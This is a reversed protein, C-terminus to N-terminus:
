LECTSIILSMVSSWFLVTYCDISTWDHLPRGSLSILEEDGLSDLSLSLMWNAICSGALFKDPLINYLVEEFVSGASHPIYVLGPSTEVSAEPLGLWKVLSSESHRCCWGLVLVGREQGCGKFLCEKCLLSFDEVSKLIEAIQKCESVFSWYISRWYLRAEERKGRIASEQSGGVFVGGCDRRGNPYSNPLFSWVLNLLRHLCLCVWVYLHNM